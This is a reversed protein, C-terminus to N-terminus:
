NDRYRSLFGAQRSEVEERSRKIKELEELLRSLELKKADLEVSVKEMRSVLAELEKEGTEVREILNKLEVDM